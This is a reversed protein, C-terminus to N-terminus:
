GGVLVRYCDSTIIALVPIMVKCVFSQMVRVGMMIIMMIIVTIAISNFVKGSNSTDNTNNLIMILTM